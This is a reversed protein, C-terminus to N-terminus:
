VALGRFPPMTLALNVNEDDGRANWWYINLEVDGPVHWWRWWWWWWALFGLLRM